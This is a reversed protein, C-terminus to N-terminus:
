EALRLTLIPCGARRLVTEAVSGLVWRAVGTRGHTGMVVLHPDIAAIRELIREAATGEVVHTATVRGGAHRVVEDLAARVTREDFDGHPSPAEGRPQRVHLLEVKADLQEALSLAFRLIPELAVSFDLPVLIRRIPEHRQWGNAM